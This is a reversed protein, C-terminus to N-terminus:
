VEWRAPGNTRSDVHVRNSYLGFGYKDPYIKKLREFVAKPNEVLIDAARGYMHQSKSDPNRTEALNHAPCRCGSTVTVKKGGNLIRVMECLEVLEKDVTDFGCGCRCAFEWRSFNSSLDGM